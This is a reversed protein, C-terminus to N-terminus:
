QWLKDGRKALDAPTINLSLVKARFKPDRDAVTMEKVSMKFIDAKTKLKAWPGYLDTATIPAPPPLPESEPEPEVALHLHRTAQYAEQLSATDWTRANRKVWDALLKRNHQNPVFGVGADSQLFELSVLQGKLYDEQQQETMEELKMTKKVGSILNIEVDIADIAKLLNISEKLAQQDPLDGKTASFSAVRKAANLVRMHEERQAHLARIRKKVDDTTTAM